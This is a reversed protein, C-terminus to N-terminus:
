TRSSRSTVGAGACPRITENPMFHDEALLTPPLHQFIRIKTGNLKVDHQQPYTLVLEAALNKTFVYPVDVDPFLKPSVTITNAADGLSPIADSRVKGVRVPFTTFAGATERGKLRWAYGTGSERDLPPQEAIAARPSAASARLIM